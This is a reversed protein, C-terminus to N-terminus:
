KNINVTVTNTYGSTKGTSSNFAQVRYYYIGKAPVTDAISSVNSGSTFIRAFSSTTKGNKVAREVYFGSENSSNDTWNLTIIRGSIRSTLGSPANLLNPDTVTIVISATGKAGLNDTVTLTATYTGASAYNHVVTIGAGTVGDGFEWQYGAITGDSDYSGSAEFTVPLPPAGSVPTAVISAVPPLTASGSDYDIYSYSHSFDATKPVYPYESYSGKSIDFMRFSELTSIDGSTSDYTDLFYRLPSPSAPMLDTFDLYFTASVPTTTGDFAYPGGALNLVKNPSWKTSPATGGVASTGLTMLLQNRKSQNLRFEALLKPSYSSRATVWTAENYWFICESTMSPNPTRLAHYSMWCFGGEYWGTGWSNAIRLAGKEDPDVIGNGNIDVWIDDNYGVITMSHGGSTGSVSIACSKGAFSDDASTFPDNSITKWTWSNVYTAYNLVYGNLLLQKLQSLGTDTNVSAVKGSQDARVNIANRWVDSNMCWARYNSDYPFEAWTALGHKQAIAYADYHWSGADNGGNVMNYTWKPSFRFQDGGNKADWNRAMATMHTLTYYVASFQACSGLSGQNRIPPFYKLASNDVGPPTATETQTIPSSEVATTGSVEAGVPALDVDSELLQHKDHKKLETNVRELGLKNLRIHQAKLMHEEGWKWQEETPRLAGTTRPDPNGCLAATSTFLLILILFSFLTITGNMGLRVIRANQLVEM